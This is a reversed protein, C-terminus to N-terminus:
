AFFFFFIKKGKHNVQGSVLPRLLNLHFCHKTQQSTEENTWSVEKQGNKKFASVSKESLEFNKFFNM